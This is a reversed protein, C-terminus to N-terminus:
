RRRSITDCYYELYLGVFRRVGMEVPISPRHGIDAELAGVDARSAPVDGPQLPFLNM